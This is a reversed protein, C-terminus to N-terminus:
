RAKMDKAETELGSRMPRANSWHSDAKVRFGSRGSFSVIPSTEKLLETVLEGVIPEANFAKPLHAECRDSYMAPAEGVDLAMKLNRYATDSRRGREFM